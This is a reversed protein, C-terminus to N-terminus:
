NKSGMNRLDEWLGNFHSVDAENSLSNKAPFVFPNSWRLDQGDYVICHWTRREESEEAFCVCEMRVRPPDSIMHTSSINM